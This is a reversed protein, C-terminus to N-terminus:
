FEAYTILAVRVVYNYWIFGTCSIMEVEWADTVATLFMGSLSISATIWYLLDILTSRAKIIKTHRLKYYGLPVLALLIINLTFIVDYVYFFPRPHVTM